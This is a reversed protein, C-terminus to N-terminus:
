HKGCPWHEAFAQAAVGAATRDSQMLKPHAQVYDSFVKELLAPTTTGRTACSQGSDQTLDYTGLLYSKASTETDASRMEAALMSATFYQGSPQQRPQTQANTGSNSTNQGIGCAERYAAVYNADAPKTGMSGSDVDYWALEQEFGVAVIRYSSGPLRRLTKLDKMAPDSAVAQPVMEILKPGVNELCSLGVLMQQRPLAIAKVRPFYPRLAEEMKPQVSKPSGMDCGKLMSLAMFGAIAIRM